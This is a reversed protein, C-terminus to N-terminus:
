ITNKVDAARIQMIRLGFPFYSSVCLLHASAHVIVWVIRRGKQHCKFKLFSLSIFLTRRASIRLTSRIFSVIAWLESSLYLGLVSFTSKQIERIYTGKIYSIQNTAYVLLKYIRNINIISILYNFLGIVYRCSPKTISLNCMLLSSILWGLVLNPFSIIDLPFSITCIAFGYFFM